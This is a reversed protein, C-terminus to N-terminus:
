NVNNRKNIEKIKEASSGVQYTNSINNMISYNGLKGLSTSSIAMEHNAINKSQRAGQLSSNLYGSNNMQLHTSSGGM